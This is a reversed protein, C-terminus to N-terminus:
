ILFDSFTSYFSENTTVSNSNKGHKNNRDKFNLLFLKEELLSRTLMWVGLRKRNQLNKVLKVTVKKSVLLKTIDNHLVEITGTIWSHSLQNVPNIFLSM